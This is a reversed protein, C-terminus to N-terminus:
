SDVEQNFSRAFFIGYILPAYNCTCPAATTPQSATTTGTGGGGGAVIRSSLKAVALTMLVLNLFLM